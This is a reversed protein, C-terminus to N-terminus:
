RRLQFQGCWATWTLRLIASWLCGWCRWPTMVLALIPAAVAGEHIAIDTEALGIPSAGDCTHDGAAPSRCLLWGIAVARVIREGAPAAGRGFGVWALLGAFLVLAVIAILGFRSERKDALSSLGPILTLLRLAGRVLSCLLLGAAFGVCLIWVPTLWNISGASLPIRFREFVDALLLSNPFLM